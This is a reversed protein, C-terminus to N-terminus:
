RLDVVLAVPGAPARAALAAIPPDGAIRGLDKPPPLPLLRPRHAHPLPPAADNASYRHHDAFARRAGIRIGADALTAFFKQPDAIGAFALVDKGALAALAQAHAELRGRFVPIGLAEAKALVCAAAAIEGVAILAQTRELQIELRARLPGAPFVRANGIGRRGDVVLVAFDKALSPNQFGDDMGIISGGRERALAAGAPRARAVVTPAIRALLLPEGGGEGPGQRGPDADPPVGPHGRDGRGSFFAVGGAARM